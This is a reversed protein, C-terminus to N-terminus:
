RQHEASLRNLKEQKEQLAAAENLVTGCIPCTNFGHKISRYCCEQWTCM